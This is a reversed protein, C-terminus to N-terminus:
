SHFFRGNRERGLLSFINRSSTSRFSFSPEGGAAAERATWHVTSDTLIFSGEMGQATNEVHFRDRAGHWKIRFSVSAPIEDPTHNGPQGSQVLLANVLNFYDDVELMKVEMQAEGEGLDVEVSDQALPVTWFAGEPTIGPNFDHIQM